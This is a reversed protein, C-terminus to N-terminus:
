KSDQFIKITISIRRYDQHWAPLREIKKEKGGLLFVGTSVWRSGCVGMTM